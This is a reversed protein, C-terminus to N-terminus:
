MSNTSATPRAMSRPSVTVSGSGYRAFSQPPKAGAGGAPLPAGQVWNVSPISHNDIWLPRRERPKPARPLM